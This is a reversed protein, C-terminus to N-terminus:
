STAGDIAGLSRSLASLVFPARWLAPGHPFGPHGPVTAILTDLGHARGIERMREIM